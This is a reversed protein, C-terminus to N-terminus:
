QSALSLVSMVFACTQCLLTSGTPSKLSGVWRTKRLTQMLHQYAGNARGDWSGDGMARRRGVGAWKLHHASPFGVCKDSTLVNVSLSSTRTNFIVDITWLVQLPAGLLMYSIYPLPILRRKANEKENAQMFLVFCFLFFAKLPSQKTYIYYYCHPLANDFIFLYCFVLLHDTWVPLNYPSPAVM